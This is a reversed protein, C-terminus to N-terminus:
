YFKIDCVNIMQPIYNINLRYSDLDESNLLYYKIFCQIIYIAIDKGPCKQPGQNFMLAYYSSELEPTWRDPIFKNPEIFVNSDRLVPGNLILFQDGKKFKHENDFSYDDLLTRFTSNVPNNLRCTELICKRLYRLSIIDNTTNIENLVNNLIDKHNSLLLLLRSSVNSIIGNIPFIWHPVQHIIEEESLDSNQTLFMLSNPNPNRIHKIIYNNYKELENPDIIVSRDVVADISNASSIVNFLPEYITDENFVIKMTILKGLKDFENINKPIGYDLISEEISQEISNSYTPIRNTSLVHENFERREIWPNGESVGLNYKMFSKFFDYKFKGVGFIFPSNDLVQKIFDIDTVINVKRDNDINIMKGLFMLQQDLLSLVNGYINIPVIKDKKLENYLEVGTTDKFMDSIKWWLCDRGLIGRKVTLLIIWNVKISVWNTILLYIIIIILTFIIYNM